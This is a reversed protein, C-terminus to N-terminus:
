RELGLEQGREIVYQLRTSKSRWVHPPSWKTTGLDLHRMALGEGDIRNEGISNGSVAYLADGDVKVGREQLAQRIERSVGHLVEVMDSGMGTATAVWKEIQPAPIPKIAVRKSAPM